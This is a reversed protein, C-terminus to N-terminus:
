PSHAIIQESPHHAAAFRSNDLLHDDYPGLSQFGKIFSSSARKVSSQIDSFKLTMTSPMFFLATVRFKLGHAREM